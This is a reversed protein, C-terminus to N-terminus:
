QITDEMDVPANKGALYYRMKVTFLRIKRCNEVTKLLYICHKGASIM